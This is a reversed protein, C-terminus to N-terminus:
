ACGKEIFARLSSGSTATLGLSIGTLSCFPFIPFSRQRASGRQFPCDVAGIWHSIRFSGGLLNLLLTRPELKFSLTPSDFTRELQSLEPSCTQRGLSDQQLNSSKFSDQQLSKQQFSLQQFSRNQQFSNEQFSPPRFSHQRLSSCDFSHRKLGDTRLSTELSSQSFSSEEFSSKKFSSKYFSSKDLSRKTFSSPPFSSNALSSEQSSSKDLSSEELSSRQFSSKPLPDKELCTNNFTEETLSSEELSHKQFREEQFTVEKFTNAAFSTDAFSKKEFTNKEFSNPEFSRSDLQHRYLQRDSLGTGLAATQSPATRFSQGSFSSESFSDQQLDERSLQQQLLQQELLEEKCATGPLSSLCLAQFSSLCLAELSNDTLDEEELKNKQLHRTSARPHLNQVGLTNQYYNNDSLEEESLETHLLDRQSAAPAESQQVLSHSYPQQNQGPALFSAGQLQEKCAEKDRTQTFSSLVLQKKFFNHVIEGSAATKLAAKDFNKKFLNESLENNINKEPFSHQQLSLQQFRQHAFTNKERQQHVTPLNKQLQKASAPNGFNEALFKYFALEVESLTIGSLQKKKKNKYFSKHFLDATSLEKKSFSRSLSEKPIQRRSALAPEQLGLEHLHSLERAPVQEHLQKSDPKHENNKELSYHELDNFCFNQQALDEALLEELEQNLVTQALKNKQEGTEKGRFSSSFFFSRLESDLVATSLQLQQQQNNQELSPQQLQEQPQQQNSKSCLQQWGRQLSKAALQEDLERQGTPNHKALHQQELQRQFPKDALQKDIENHEELEKNWFSTNIFCNKFLFSFWLMSLLTRRLSSTRKLTTTTCAKTSTRTSLPRRCLSTRWATRKWARLSSPKFWADLAFSLSSLTWATSLRQRSSGRRWAKNSSTKLWANMALSLSMLTWAAILARTQLAPQHFARHVGGPVLDLCLQQMSLQFSQVQRTQLETNIRTRCLLAACLLARQEFSTRNCSEAQLQNSFSISGFWPLSLSKDLDLQNFCELTGRCLKQQPFSHLQGARTPSLLCALGLEDKPLSDQEFRNRCYAAVLKEQQLSLQQFSSRCYAAELEKEQLSQNPFSMPSFCTGLCLAASMLQFSSFLLILLCMSLSWIRYSFSKFFSNTGAGQALNRKTFSLTSFSNTGARRDLKTHVLTEELEELSGNDFSDEKFSMRQFSDERLSLSQLTLSYFRDEQYTLSHLTLSQSNGRQFRLSHLTMRQSNGERFSLSQLTLSYFRDRILSLSHSILSELIGSTFSLSKFTLSCEERSLLSLSDLNLSQLTKPLSEDCSEQLALQRLKPAMQPPVVLVMGVLSSRSLFSASGPCRVTSLALAEEAETDIKLKALMLQEPANHSLSHALNKQSHVRSLRLQGDLEIHRNRRSLGLMM